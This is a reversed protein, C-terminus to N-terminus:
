SETLQTPNYWKVYYKVTVRCGAAVSATGADSTTGLQLYIPNGPNGTASGTYNDAFMGDDISKAGVIHPLYLTFKVTTPENSDMLRIAGANSREVFDDTKLGSFQDQYTSPNVVQFCGNQSVATGDWLMEVDVKYVKYRKYLAIWQDFGRPQHGAGTIDPDYLGNLSIEVATNALGGAITTVAIRQSWVVSNFLVDRGPGMNPYFNLAAIQNVSSQGITATARKGKNRYSKRGSKAYKSPKKRYSPKIFSKGMKIIKEGLLINALSNAFNGAFTHGPISLAM